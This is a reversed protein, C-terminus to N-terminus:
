SLRTDCAPGLQRPPTAFFGNGPTRVSVSPTEPARAPAPRRVATSERRISESHTPKGRSSITEFRGRKRPRQLHILGAPKSKGTEWPANEQPEGPGGHTRTSGSPGLLLPNKKAEPRRNSAGLEGKTTQRIAGPENKRNHRGSEFASSRPLGMPGKSSRPRAGLHEMMTVLDIFRHRPFMCPAAPGILM